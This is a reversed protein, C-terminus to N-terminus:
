WFSMLFYLCLKAASRENFSGRVVSESLLIFDQIVICNLDILSFVRLCRRLLPVVRPKLENTQTLRRNVASRRGPLKCVVLGFDYSRM